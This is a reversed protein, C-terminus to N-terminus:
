AGAKKSFWKKIPLPIFEPTNNKYDLYEQGFFKEMEAYESKISLKFSIYGVVTTTLVLWSNMMLGVAPIILLIIAVYLPNQCLYYGGTTM